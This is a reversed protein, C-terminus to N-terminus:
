VTHEEATHEEVQHEQMEVESADGSTAASSGAATAPQGHRQYKDSKRYSTVFWICCILCLCVGVVCGVVIGAIAGGSLTSSSSSSPPLGNGSSSSVPPLTNSKYTTKTTASTKDVLQSWTFAIVRLEISVIAKVGKHRRTQKTKCKSSPLFCRQQQRQM